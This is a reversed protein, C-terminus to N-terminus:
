NMDLLLYWQEDGSITLVAAVNVILIVHKVLWPHPTELAFVVNLVMSVVRFLVTITLQSCGLDHM